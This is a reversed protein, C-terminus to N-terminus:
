VISEAIIIARVRVTEFSTCVLDQVRQFRSNREM